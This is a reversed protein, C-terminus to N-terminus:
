GPSQMVTHKLFFKLTPQLDGWSPRHSRAAQSPGGDSHLVSLQEMGAFQAQLSFAAM